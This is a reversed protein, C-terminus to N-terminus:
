KQGEMYWPRTASGSAGLASELFTRRYKRVQDLDGKQTEPSRLVTNDAPIYTQIHTGYETPAISAGSDLRLKDVMIKRTARAYALIAPNGAAVRDVLSDYRALVLGGNVMGGLAGLERSENILAKRFEAYQPTNTLGSDELHEVDKMAPAVNLFMKYEKSQAETMPQGDAKVFALPNGKMTKTSFVDTRNTTRASLENEMEFLEKNAKLQLEGRLKEANIRASQVNTKASIAALQKDLQDYAATKNAVLNDFQNKIAQQAQVNNTQAASLQAELMRFRESQVKNHDDINSQIFAMALNQGGVQAQGLSGLGVALGLMIKDGADKSGWFSQWPQSAYEQRLRAIEDRNIAAQREAERSLAASKSAFDAAATLRKADILAKDSALQEAIYVSDQLAAEQLSVAERAGGLANMAGQTPQVTTTSVDGTKQQILQQEPAIVAPGTPLSMGTNEPLPQGTYPDTPYQAGTMNKIQEITSMNFPDLIDAADAYAQAGIEANAMPMVQNPTPLLGTEAGMPVEPAAIAMIEPNEGVIQDIPQMLADEPALTPDLDDM